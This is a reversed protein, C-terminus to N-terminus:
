SPEGAVLRVIWALTTTRISLVGGATVRRRKKMKASWVVASLATSGTRRFPGVTRNRMALVGACAEVIAADPPFVQVYAQYLEEDQQACYRNLVEAVADIRWAPIVSGEGAILAERCANKIFAINRELPLRDGCRPHKNIRQQILNM